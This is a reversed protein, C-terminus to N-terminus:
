VDHRKAWTVKDMSTAQVNNKFDRSIGCVSKRLGVQWHDPWSSCKQLQPIHQTASHQLAHDRDEVRSDSFRANKFLSVTPCLTSVVTAPRMMIFSTVACVFQHARTSSVFTRQVRRRGTQEQLPREVLGLESMTSRNLLEHFFGLGSDVSSAGSHRVHAQFAM